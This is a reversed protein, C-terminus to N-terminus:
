YYYDGVILKFRIESNKFSDRLIELDKEDTFYVETIDEKLRLDAIIGKFIKGKVISISDSTQEIYYDKPLIFSILISKIKEIEKRKEENKNIEETIVM